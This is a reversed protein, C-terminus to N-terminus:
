EGAGPKFLRAPSQYMRCRMLGNTGFLEVLAEGRRLKSAMVRVADSMEPLVEQLIKPQRHQFVIKSNLNHRIREPIDGASQGSLFFGISLSRGKRIQDDVTGEMAYALRRNSTKFLDAVEDIVHLIPPTQESHDRRLNAVHKMAYDLFLAYSRGETDARVRIVNVHGARLQGFLQNAAVVGGTQASAGFVRRGAGGQGPSNMDIWRPIRDGRNIKGRLANFTMKNFVAPFPMQAQAAAADPFNMLWTIFDDMTWARAGLQMSFGMLLQEAMEQQNEEGPRYFIVQALKDPDLEHAGVSIATENARLNVTGLAWFRVKAIGVAVGHLMPEDNPEDILSYDPKMDYVLSCFRAEQAARIINVLTNSKGSGTTGACLGHHRLIEGNLQVSIESGDRTKIGAIVGIAYGDGPLSLFRDIEAGSSLTWTSGAKPRTMPAIIAGGDLQQALIEASYFQSLKFFASTEYEHRDIRHLTDLSSPDYRHAANQNLWLTPAQIQGFYADEGNVATIYSMMPLQESTDNALLTIASPSNTEDSFQILTKINQKTM